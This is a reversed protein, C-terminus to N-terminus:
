RGHEYLVRGERLATTIFAHPVAAWDQAEAPTWVVVDKAPFLGALARLYRPARRHRPLDSEEIILLDLDSEPRADGRAHSGFLVIQRPNGVAVIRRVAEALLADTVPPYHDVAQVGM